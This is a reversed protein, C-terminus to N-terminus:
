TLGPTEAATVHTGNMLRQIVLRLAAWGGGEPLSSSPLPYALGGSRLSLQAFATHGPLAAQAPGQSVAGRGGRDATYGQAISFM